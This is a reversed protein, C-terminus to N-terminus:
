VKEQTVPKRRRKRRFYVGLRYYFVYESTKIKAWMREKLAVFGMRRVYRSKGLILMRLVATIPLLGKGVLFADCQPLFERYMRALEKLLTEASTCSVGNLSFVTYQEPVYKVSCGQMVAALLHKHDAVISYSTDYGGQSQLLVRRVLVGQHSFPMYPYLRYIESEKEPNLRGDSFRVQSVIIDSGCEAASRYVRAMAEPNEIYDDLGLVYIYDGKAKALGKNLADYIGSDKESYIQLSPANLGKIFEVSGDSSAGDMILHEHPFPLAAVGMICRRVAEAGASSLGNYCATIITIM